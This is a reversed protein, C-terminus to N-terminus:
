WAILKMCNNKGYYGYNNGGIRRPSVPSLITGYSVFCDKLFFYLFIFHYLFIRKKHPNLCTLLLSNHSKILLYEGIVSRSITYRSISTRSNTDREGGSSRYVSLKRPNKIKIISYVMFISAGSEAYIISLHPM